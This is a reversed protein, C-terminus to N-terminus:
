TNNTELAQVENMMAEKWREDQLAYNIDKPIVVEEISMSFAKFQPSLKSYGVYNAILYQTCSRVGKRIAIPVDLLLDEENSTAEAEQLSDVSKTSETKSGVEPDSTPNSQPDRPRRYYVFLPKNLAPHDQIWDVQDGGSNSVSNPTPFCSEPASKIISSPELSQFQHPLFFSDWLKARTISSDSHSMSFFPQDELFSVDCSVIFWKISPNYCKYGQQTPSYGVFM